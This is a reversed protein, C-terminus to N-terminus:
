ALIVVAEELSCEFREVIIVPLVPCGDLVLDVLLIVGVQVLVESPQLHLVHPLVHALLVVATQHVQADQLLRRVPELLEVYDGDSFHVLADLELAAVAALPEDAVLQQLGMKVLVERFVVLYAAPFTNCREHIRAKGNCVRDICAHRCIGNTSHRDPLAASVAETCHDADHAVVARQGLAELRPDRLSRAGVSADKLALVVTGVGFPGVTAPRGVDAAAM